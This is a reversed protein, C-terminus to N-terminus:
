LPKKQLLPINGLALLSGEAFVLCDESPLTRKAAQKPLIPTFMKTQPRFYHTSSIPPHFEFGLLLLVDKKTKYKNNTKIKCHNKESIYLLLKLRSSRVLVSFTPLM